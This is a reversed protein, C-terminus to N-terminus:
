RPIDKFPNEEPRSLTLAEPKGTPEWTNSECSSKSFREIMLGSGPVVSLKAMAPGAVGERGSGCISEYTSVSGLETLGTEVFAAITVARSEQGGMMFESEFALEDLGDGDFDALTRITEALLVFGINRVLRDGEIIAIGKKPFGRPYRSMRYLVAQQEVNPRTFAGTTTALVRVDEPYGPEQVSWHGRASAIAQM